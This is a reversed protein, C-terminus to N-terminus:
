LELTPDGGAAAPQKGHAAAAPADADLPRAALLLVVTPPEVLQQHNPTIALQLLMPLLLLL